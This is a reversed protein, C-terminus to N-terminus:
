AAVAKITSGLKLIHELNRAQDEIKWLADEKKRLAKYEEDITKQTKKIEVNFANLTTRVTTLDIVLNTNKKKAM